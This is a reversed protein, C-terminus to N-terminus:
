AEAQALDDRRPPEGPIFVALTALALDDTGDEGPLQAYLASTRTPIPVPVAFPLGTADLGALVTQDSRLRAPEAHNRYVHLVYDGTPTQVRQVLNNTGSALSAVRLPGLLAWAHQIRQITTLRM